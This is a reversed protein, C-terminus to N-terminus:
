ATEGGALGMKRKASSFDKILTRYGSTGKRPVPVFDKGKKLYGHKKCISHWLKMLPNRKIASSKKSAVIQGRSNRRLNAATLGGSTHKARGSMVQARTGVARIKKVAAAKRKRSSSSKRSSKRSVAKRKPSSRKRSSSSSRKVRKTGRKTGKRGRKTAKKGKRGTSRKTSKRSKRGAAKRGKRGASKRSSSKRGRKSARKKKAGGSLQEAGALLAEVAENAESTSGGALGELQAIQRATLAEVGAM